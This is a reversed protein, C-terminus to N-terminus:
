KPIILSEGTMEGPKPLGMIDLLTPAVDALRGDRRLACGICRDDVVILPVPDNVTHATYPEDNEEDWMKEANGHDATIILRGGVKEVADVV